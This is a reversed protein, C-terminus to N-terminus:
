TFLRKCIILLFLVIISKAYTKHYSRVIKLRIEEIIDRPADDKM